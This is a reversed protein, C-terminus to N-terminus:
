KNDWPFGGRVEIQHKKFDPDNEAAMTAMITMAKLKANSNLVSVLGIVAAEFDDEGDINIGVKLGGDIKRLEIITKDM